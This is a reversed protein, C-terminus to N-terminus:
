FLNDNRVSEIKSKIKSDVIDKLYKNADAYNKQTISKIFAKIDTNEKNVKKMAAFDAGTIEDHPPAIAAIKKQKPSLEAKVEEDDSLTKALSVKTDKRLRSKVLNLLTELEHPTVSLSGEVDGYAGTIVIHKATHKAISDEDEDTVAGVPAGITAGTAAGGFAGAAGGLLAGPLGGVLGGGIAGLTGGGIAGGVAGKGLGKFAGGVMGEKVPHENAEASALKPNQTLAIFQKRPMKTKQGNITVEIVENPDAQQSAVDAAIRATHADDIAGKVAGLGAGLGAGILAGPVGARSGVLAGVGAGGIAGPLLGKKFHRSSAANIKAQRQAAITQPNYTEADEDEDKGIAANVGGGAAAGLGAGGIAGGVAGPIGGKALGVLSGGIAGGVAGRGAGVVGRKLIGEELVKKNVASNM